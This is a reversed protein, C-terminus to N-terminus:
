PGHDVIDIPNGDDDIVFASVTARRTTTNTNLTFSVLRAVGPVSLIKAKLVSEAYRQDRPGGMIPITDSGEPQWWQLGGDTDLYWEGLIYLLECRLRQETSESGMAIDRMSGGFMRDHNADLRRVTPTGM